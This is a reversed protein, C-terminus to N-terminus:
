VIFNILRDKVYIIKVIKKSELYKDILKMEKIKEVLVPESINNDAMIMSRKKGNVQIVIEINDKELYKLNVSPWELKDQKNLISLCESVLHPIVPMMVTLIKVFNSELNSYNINKDLLKNYFSYIEHFVAIIVNYRFKELSFNIKNISQNTFIELETDDNTKKNKILHLIKESMIWFKQIFKYASTMGTESWQIDKEPPSDSLIFLRVADAGYAEIMKEPDITNKKSKSM